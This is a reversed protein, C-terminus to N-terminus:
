KSPGVQFNASTLTTAQVGVLTIPDHLDFPQVLKTHQTDAIDNSTGHGNIWDASWIVIVTDGNNTEGFFIGGRENPLDTVKYVTNAAAAIENVTGNGVPGVYDIHKYYQGTALFTDPSTSTPFAIVGTGPGDGFTISDTSSFGKVITKSDASMQINNNGGQLILTTSTSPQDVFLIGRGSPPAIITNNDGKVYGYQSISSLAITLNAGYGTSVITTIYSKTPSMGFYTSGNTVSVTSTVPQALSTDLYGSSAAQNLVTQAPLHQTPDAYGGHSLDILWGNPNTASAIISSLNEYSSTFGTVVDARQNAFSSLTGLWFTLGAADPGRGLINQYLQTVFATDNPGGHDTAM